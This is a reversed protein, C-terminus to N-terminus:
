RAAGVVGVTGASTAAEAAVGEVVARVEEGVGQSAAIAALPVAQQRWRRSLPRESRGFGAAAAAAAAAHVAAAAVAGPAASGIRTYVPLAAAVVAACRAAAPKAAEVGPAPQALPLAGAAVAVAAAVGIQRAQAAVVGGEASSM